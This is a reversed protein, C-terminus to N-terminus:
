KHPKIIMVLVSKDLNFDWSVFTNEINANLYSELRDKHELLIRKELNRKAITLSEPFGLHILEKEIAVLIQNRILIITRPNLMCSSVEGPIKEAKQSVKIIEEHVADQNDYSCNETEYNEHPMVGIFIGSHSDLNWDYYFEKIEFGTNMHVYAKIDVILKEMLMDRIKQVYKSQDNDILKNEMTTMFEKIYITIYPASITAFVSGPGKGFHERLVMGTYSALEIEKKRLDM